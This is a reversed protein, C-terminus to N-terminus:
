SSSSISTVGPRGFLRGNIEDSRPSLENSHCTARSEACEIGRGSKEPSGPQAASRSSGNSRSEEGSATGAIEGSSLWELDLEHLIDNEDEAILDGVTPTIYLEIAERINTLCEEVTEGQSLCGPLSPVYVCYGGAEDPTLFVAIKM